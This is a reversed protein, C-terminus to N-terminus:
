LTLKYDPTSTQLYSNSAIEFKLYSRATLPSKWRVCCIMLRGM